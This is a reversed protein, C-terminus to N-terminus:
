DRFNIMQRTTTPYTRFTNQALLYQVNKLSNTLMCSINRNENILFGIFKHEMAANESTQMRLMTLNRKKAISVLEQINDTNSNLNGLNTCDRNQLNFQMLGKILNLSNNIKTMQDFIPKLTFQETIEAYTTTDIHTNIM